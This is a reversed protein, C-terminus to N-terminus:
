TQDNVFLHGWFKFGFFRSFEGMVKLKREFPEFRLRPYVSQGRRTGVIMNNTQDIHCVIRDSGEMADVPVIVKNLHDVRMYPRNPDDKIITTHPYTIRYQHAYHEANTTSMFITGPKMRYPIPIDQVFDRLQTVITSEVLAGTTIPTLSGATIADKIKKHYGDFAESAAGAVSPTPSVREGSWSALNLDEVFQPLIHNEIVYRPYSWETPSRDLQFWNVAWADYFEELQAADFELDIKGHQLTNEVADFTETNNPTFASQYPQLVDAVQINPVSYTRDCAVFPLRNEFELGQKMDQEIRSEYLVAYQNLGEAASEITISHAM